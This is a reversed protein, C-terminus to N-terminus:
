WSMRVGLNLAHNDTGGGVAGDFGSTWQGGTRPRGHRRRPLQSGVQPRPRRLLRRCWLARSRALGRAARERRFLPPVNAMLAGAGLHTVSLDRGNTM